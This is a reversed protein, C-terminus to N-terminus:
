FVYNVVGLGNCFIFASQLMTLNWNQQRIATYFLCSSSILFLCFGDALFGQAVFFAGTVGFIAGILEIINIM